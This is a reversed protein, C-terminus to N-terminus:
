PPITGDAHAVSNKAFSDTLRFEPYDAVVAWFAAGRALLNAARWGHAFNDARPVRRGPVRGEPLFLFFAADAASKRTRAYERRV